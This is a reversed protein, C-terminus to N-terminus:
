PRALQDRLKRAQEQWDARQPAALVKDLAARAEDRQGTDRLAEALYLYNEPHDPCLQVARQLLRLAKRPSGISTPPPPTRLHLIALLRLPGARDYKEDRAIACQLAREMEGVADLGYSRDAEALWGVNVAYFYHGEVSAPNLERARRAHVIGQRAAAAREAANTSNEAATALAAAARWQAEYTDPVTGVPARVGRITACGVAVLVPLTLWKGAM